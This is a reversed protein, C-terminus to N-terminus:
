KKKSIIERYRKMENIAEKFIKGIRGIKKIKPSLRRKAYKFPLVIVEMTRKLILGLGNFLKILFSFLIKSLIKLYIFGGAFFGLFIYGRLEAWNSKNLIYFFILAISVWFIFDEIITVIKKPKFFRRIVRYIDYVLGAILGGYLSTLFIYFQVKITTDM